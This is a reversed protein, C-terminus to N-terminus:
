FRIIMQGSRDCYGDAVLQDFTHLQMISKCLLLTRKISWGRTANRISIHALGRYHSAACRLKNIIEDLGRANEEKLTVITKTGISITAFVEDGYELQKNNNM